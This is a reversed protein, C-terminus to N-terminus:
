PGDFGGRFGEGDGFGHAALVGVTVIGGLLLVLLVVAVAFRRSRVGASHTARVEFLLQQLLGATLLRWGPAAPGAPAPVPLDATLAPLQDLHRAAFADAIREDGEDYSLQGRAVADQLAGVTAARDADSARLRRAQEVGLPSVHNRAVESTM